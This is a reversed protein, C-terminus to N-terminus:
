AMCFYDQVKLNKAVIGSIIPFRGVFYNVEIKLVVKGCVLVM